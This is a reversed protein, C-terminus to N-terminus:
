EHSRLRQQVNVHLVRKIVEVSTDPTSHKCVWHFAQCHNLFTVILPRDFFFCQFFDTAPKGIDVVVIDYGFLFWIINSAIFAFGYYSLTDISCILNKERYSDQKYLCTTAGCFWTHYPKCLTSVRTKM